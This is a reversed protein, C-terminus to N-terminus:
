RKQGPPPPFEMQISMSSVPMGVPSARKRTLDRSAQQEGPREWMSAQTEVRLKRPEGFSSPSSGSFARQETFPSAESTTIALGPLSQSPIGYEAPVYPRYSTALLPANSRVSTTSTPTTFDMEPSRTLTGPSGAFRGPSHVMPPANVVDTRVSVGKGKDLKVPNSGLAASPDVFPKEQVEEDEAPFTATRPTVHTQCRFSLPSARRQRAIRNRRKRFQMYGCGLALLFFVLAGISIGAIVPPSLDMSSASDSSSTSPDVIQITSTTFVTDNLGVIIGNAPQQECGAQIGILVPLSSNSSYCYPTPLLNVTPSTTTIAPHAWALFVTTWTIPFFSVTTKKVTTTLNPILQISFAM